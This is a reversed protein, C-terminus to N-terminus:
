KRAVEIGTFKIGKGEAEKYDGTFKLFKWYSSEIEKEKPNLGLPDKFGRAVLKGETLKNYIDGLAMRRAKERLDHAASNQASARRTAAQLIELADRDINISGDPQLGFNRREEGLALIREALEQIENEAVDASRMLAPDALKFIDYSSYWTRSKFKSYFIVSTPGLVLGVVLAVLMGVSPRWITWIFADWFAILPPQVYAMADAFHPVGYTVLTLCFGVIGMIGFFIVARIRYVPNELALASVIAGGAGILLLILNLILGTV